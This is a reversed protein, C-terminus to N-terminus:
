TIDEAAYQVVDIKLVNDFVSALVRCCRCGVQVLHVLRCLCSVNVSFFNVELNM